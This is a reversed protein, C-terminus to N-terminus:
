GRRFDEAQMKREDAQRYRLRVLPLFVGFMPMMVLGVTLPGYWIGWPQGAALAVLGFVLSAAGILILLWAYGYVFAKCKGRPAFTGAVAGWLGGLVGVGGGAISGFLAGFQHVDFWPESM